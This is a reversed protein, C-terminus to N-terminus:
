NTMYTITFGYMTGSSAVVGTGYSEEKLAFIYANTRAQDTGLGWGIYTNGDSPFTLGGAQGILGGDRGHSQSKTAFPFGSLCPIGVITDGGSWALTGSLTVLNGVRTYRGVNGSAATKAGSTAGILIPTFSGEEYEEMHNTSATGGVWIGTTAYLNSQIRTTGSVDLGYSPASTLIGVKGDKLCFQNLHWGDDDSEPTCFTQGNRFIIENGNGSFAGNTNGV